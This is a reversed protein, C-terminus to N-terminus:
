RDLWHRDGSFDELAMYRPRKTNLHTKKESQQYQHFQQGGM